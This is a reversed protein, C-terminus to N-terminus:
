AVRRRAARRRYETFVPAGNRHCGVSLAVALLLALGAGVWTVSALALALGGPVWWCLLVGTSHEDGLRALDVDSLTRM